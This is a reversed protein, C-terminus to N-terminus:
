KSGQMLLHRAKLTTILLRWMLEVRVHGDDTEHSYIINGM